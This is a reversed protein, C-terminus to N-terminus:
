ACLYEQEHRLMSWATRVTKNALAVAARGSGRREILSKLWLEKPTRAERRALANITAHAGIILSSRLRKSGSSRGIGKMKIVGGSSHQKPTLGICAAAGRGNKFTDGQGLAVYLGIANMPGVGELKTLRRCHENQSARQQLTKDCCKVQEDLHLWHQWALQLTSRFTFPLDNEADELILPVQRKLHSFGKSFVIGFETLLGRIMNSVATRQDILHEYLRMSAQLDQQDITKITSHKASPQRAATAIALADNADTKQGQRFAAVYRAGLQVTEHGHSQAIRCWHHAGSCAEMAVLAPPQRSLFRALDQRRITKKSLTKGESNLICIDYVYKALDIAIVNIQPM